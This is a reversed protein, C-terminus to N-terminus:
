RWKCTGEGFENAILPLVALLGLDKYFDNCDPKRANEILRELKTKPKEVPPMAFPLAARNGTGQRTIEAARRRMQDLDLSPKTPDYEAPGERPTTPPASRFPSPSSPLSQAPARRITEPTRTEAPAARTEVPPARTDIPVREVPPLALREQMPAIPQLLQSPIKPTEVPVRIAPMEIAPLVAREPITPMPQLVPAPIKPTEVPVRIVPAEMTPLKTSEQMKPMPQLVRAPIKPTEVPVRIVPAEIPPLTTREPLTPVQQLMPPPIKPTEMPVAKFEVSPPVKVESPALRDLMPPFDVPPTPVPKVDPPAEVKPVPAPEPPPAPVAQPPPPVEKAPEATARYAERIVVNLSGWMARGERSGGVPAGFLLIAIAHLLMSLIVFQTLRAQAIAKERPTWRPPLPLDRTRLPPRYQSLPRNALTVV